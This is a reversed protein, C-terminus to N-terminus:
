HEDGQSEQDLEAVFRLRHYCPRLSTDVYYLPPMSGIRLLGDVERTVDLEVPVEIEVRNIYSHIGLEDDRIEATPQLARVIGHLPVFAEDM